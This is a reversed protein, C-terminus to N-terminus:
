RDRMEQLTRLTAPKLVSPQTVIAPGGALAQQLVRDEVGMIDVEGVVAVALLPHGALALRARSEM